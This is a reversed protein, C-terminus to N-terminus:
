FDDQGDYKLEESRNILLDTLSVKKKCVEKIALAVRLTPTRLGERYNRVASESIEINPDFKKLMNAFELNSIDRSDMYRKLHM